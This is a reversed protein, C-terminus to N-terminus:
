KQRLIENLIKRIKDEEAGSIKIENGFEKSFVRITGEYSLQFIFLLGVLDFGDWRNHKDHYIREWGDKQFVNAIRVLHETELNELIM